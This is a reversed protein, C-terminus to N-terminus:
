PRDTRWNGLTALVNINIRWGIGDYIIVPDNMEKSERKPLRLQGRMGGLIRTKTTLRRHRYKVGCSTVYARRNRSRSKPIRAYRMQWVDATRSRGYCYYHAVTRARARPGSNRISTLGQNSHPPSIPHSIPVVCLDNTESFGSCTEFPDAGIVRHRRYHRKVLVVRIERFRPRPQSNVIKALIVSFIIINFWWYVDIVNPFKNQGLRFDLRYFLSWGPLWVENSKPIYYM